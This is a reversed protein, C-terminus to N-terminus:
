GKKSISSAGSTKNNKIDASGHYHVSSAGSAVANLEKNVTIQIDSAGSASASCNEAQLSYGKFDSAGSADVQLSAASGSITVDSAGSIDVSLENAQVDGRFDSAGSFRIQLKDCKITGSAVVDCAGSANLSRLTKISVYARLKKNGTNKWFKNDDDYWIRLVGNEVATKIKDRYEETKASVAVGEENGQSLYLDIAHSIKISHFGSVNRQQANPDSIVQKQAFVTAALLLAALSYILKKM